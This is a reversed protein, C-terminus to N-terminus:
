TYNIDASGQQMPKGHFGGSSEGKHFNM